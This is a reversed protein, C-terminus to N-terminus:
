KTVRVKKAKSWRGYCIKKSSGYCVTRVTRIRVYYTKKKKLKKVTYSNKSTKYTKVNKTFKKNAATMVQYSYGPVKKYTIRIKKGKQNKATKISIKQNLAAKKLQAYTKNDQATVTSGTIVPEKQPQGIDESSGTKDNDSTSDETSDTGTSGAPPVTGNVLAAWNRHFEDNAAEWQAYLTISAGDKLTDNEDVWSDETVMQTGAADLSWGKLHFGDRVVGIYTGEYTGCTVFEGPLWGYTCYQTVTIYDAAYNTGGNPNFVVKYHNLNEEGWKTQRELSSLNKDYSDPYNEGWENNLSFNVWTYNENDDFIAVSWTKNEEGALAVNSIALVSLATIAFLTFLRNKMFIVGIKFTKYRKM